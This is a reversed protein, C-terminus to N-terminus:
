RCQACLGFFEMAHDDIRFGTSREMLAKVRELPCSEIHSVEGCDRCVVHHHHRGAEVLEYLTEGERLVVPKVLGLQKLVDITRYVTVLDVSVRRSKLAARIEAASLPASVRGLHELIARRPRTLRHGKAKLRGIWNKKMIAFSKCYNVMGSSLIDLQKERVCGRRYLARSLFSTLQL